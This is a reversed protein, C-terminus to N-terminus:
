VRGGKLGLKGTPLDKRWRVHRKGEDGERGEGERGEGKEGGEQRGGENIKESDRYM